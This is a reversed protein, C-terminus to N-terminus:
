TVLPQLLQQQLNVTCGVSLLYAGFAQESSCCFDAVTWDQLWTVSTSCNIKVRPTTGLIVASTHLQPTDHSKLVVAAVTVASEVRHRRGATSLRGACHELVRHRACHM